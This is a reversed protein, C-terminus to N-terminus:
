TGRTKLYKLLTWVAEQQADDMDMPDFAALLVESVTKEASPNGRGSGGGSGGHRAADGPSTAERREDHQPPPLVRDFRPQVLRDEGEAFFGAQRASREFVQRAKDTQKPAVGLGGMERELAKTPPLHHGRYKEYIGRYLPVTLFAAARAESEADAKVARQGLETLKFSGRGDKEVFGFLRAAATKMRFSGSVTQKMQAALEPLDCSSLGARAYVAKAVEVGADIDLYPFEITSRDNQRADAPAKQPAAEDLSIATDGM